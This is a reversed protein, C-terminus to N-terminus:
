SDSLKIMRQHLRSYRQDIKGSLDVPESPEREVRSRGEDLFDTLQKQIEGWQKRKSRGDQFAREAVEKSLADLSTKLVGFAKELEPRNQPDVAFLAQHDRTAVEIAKDFNM